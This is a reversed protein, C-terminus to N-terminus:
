AIHWYSGIGSLSLQTPSHHLNFKSVSFGIHKQHRYMATLTYQVTLLDGNKRVRRTIFELRERDKAVQLEVDFDFDLSYNLQDKRPFFISLSQGIIEESRYGTLAESAPNWSLIIGTPDTMFVAHNSLFQALVSDPDEFSSPFQNSSFSPLTMTSYPIAM